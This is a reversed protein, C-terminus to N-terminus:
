KVKEWKTWELVRFRETCARYIYEFIIPRAAEHIISLEDKLVPVRGEFRLGHLQNSNTHDLPVPGLWGCVVVGKNRFDHQETWDWGEEKPPGPIVIEHGDPHQLICSYTVTAIAENLKDKLDDLPTLEDRSYFLEQPKKRTQLAEWGATFADYGRKFSSEPKSEAKKSVRHWSGLFGHRKNHCIIQGAEPEAKDSPPFIKYKRCHIEITAMNCDERRVHFHDVRSPTQACTVAGEFDDPTFFQPYKPKPEEAPKSEGRHWPIAKSDPTIVVIRNNDKFTSRKINIGLIQGVMGELIPISTRLKGYMKHTVRFECDWKDKGDIDAFGAHKLAAAFDEETFPQLEGEKMIHNDLEYYENTEGPEFTWKIGAAIKCRNVQIEPNLIKCYGPGEEIWGKAVATPFDYYAYREHDIYETHIRFPSNGVWNTIMEEPLKM